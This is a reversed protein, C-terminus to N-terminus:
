QILQIQDERCEPRSEPFERLCMEVLLVGFSFTDMKPSHQYPLGAEPAAYAPSGPGVTKIDNLFNASRYLWISKGAMWQPPAEAACQWQQHRPSNNPLAYIDIPLAEMPASLM